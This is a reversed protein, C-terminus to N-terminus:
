PGDAADDVGSRAGPGADADTAGARGPSNPGHEPVFSL